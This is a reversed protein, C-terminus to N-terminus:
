STAVPLVLRAVILNNELMELSFNGGMLRVARQCILLNQVISRHSSSVALIDSESGGNFAAILQRDCAGSDIVSLELLDGGLLQSRIEIKDGVGSRRCAMALLEGLILDLKISDARVSL